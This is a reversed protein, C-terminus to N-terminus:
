VLARDRMFWIDDFFKASRDREFGFVTVVVSGKGEKVKADATWAFGPDWKMKSALEMGTRVNGEITLTGEWGAVVRVTGNVTLTQEFLFSATNRVNSEAGGTITFEGEIELEIKAVVRLVQVGFSVKWSIKLLKLNAAIKIWKFARNSEEAEKWGWEVELTGSLIEIGWEMRWGVQPIANALQQFYGFVRMIGGRVTEVADLFRELGFANKIDGGNRELKIGNIARRYAPDTAPSEVITNSSATGSRIRTQTLGDRAGATTDVVQRTTRGNETYTTATTSEATRGAARQRQLERYRAEGVTGEARAGGRKWVSPLGLELKFKDGPHVFVYFIATGWGGGAPRVGCSIIHAQYARPPPFFLAALAAGLRGRRANAAVAPFWNDCSVPCHHNIRAGQATRTGEPGGLIRFQPHLAPHACAEMEAWVSITDRYGGSPSAVVDFRANTRAVRPNTANLPQPVGRANVAWVLGGYKRDTPTCHRCKILARRITCPPRVPARRAAECRACAQQTPARAPGAARGAPRAAGGGGRGASTRPQSM